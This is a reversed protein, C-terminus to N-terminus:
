SGVSTTSIIPQRAGYVSPMWMILGGKIEMNFSLM